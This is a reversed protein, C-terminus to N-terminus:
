IFHKIGGTASSQHTICNMVYRRGETLCAGKRFVPQLRLDAVAPLKAHLVPDAPILVHTGVRLGKRALYLVALVLNKVIPFPRSQGYTSTSCKLAWFTCLSTYCEYQQTSLPTANKANRHPDRQLTHWINLRHLRSPVMRLAHCTKHYKKFAKSLEGRVTTSRRVAINDRVGGLLLDFVVQSAQTYCQEPTLINRRHGLTPRNHKNNSLHDLPVVGFTKYANEGEGHEFTAMQTPQETLVRGSVFCTPTDLDAAFVGNCCTSDCQHVKGSRTCMYLHGTVDHNAGM